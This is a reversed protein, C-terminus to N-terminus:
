CKSSCDSGTQAVACYCILLLDIVNGLGRSVRGMGDTKGRGGLLHLFYKKGETTATFPVCLISGKFEHACNSPSIISSCQKGEDV